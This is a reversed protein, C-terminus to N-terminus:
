ELDQILPEPIVAVASCPSGDKFRDEMISFPAESRDCVELLSIQARRVGNMFFTADTVLM